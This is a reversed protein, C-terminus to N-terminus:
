RRRGRLARNADPAASPNPSLTERRYAPDSRLQRLILLGNDEKQLMQNSANSLIEQTKQLRGLQEMVQRIEAGKEEEKKEQSRWEAVVSFLGSVVVLVLAIKGGLTLAEEEKKVDGTRVKTKYTVLIAYLAIAPSLALVILKLYDM